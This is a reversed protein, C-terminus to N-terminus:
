PKAKVHLVPEGDKAKAWTRAKNIALKRKIADALDADSVGARRQVDWLLLWCDAHELLDDPAEAVELAELSLHKAPGVASRTGFTEQSWAAHEARLAQLKDLATM